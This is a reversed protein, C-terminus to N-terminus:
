PIFCEQFGRQKEDEMRERGGGNRMQRGRNEPWGASCVCVCPGMEWCLGLREGPETCQPMAMEGMRPCLSNGAHLWLADWQQGTGQAQKPEAAPCGRPLGRLEAGTDKDRCPSGCGM